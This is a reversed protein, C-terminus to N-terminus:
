KDPRIINGDFKIILSDWSNQNSCVPIFEYYGYENIKNVNVQVLYKLARLQCYNYRQSLVHREISDYEPYFGPVINIERPMVNTIRYNLLTMFLLYFFLLGGWWSNIHILNLTSAM